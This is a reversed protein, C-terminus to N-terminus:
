PPATQKLFSEENVGMSIQGSVPSAKKGKGEKWENLTLLNWDAQKGV